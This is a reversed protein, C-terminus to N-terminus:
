LKGYDFAAFWLERNGTRADGWVSSLATDTIGINCSCDDGPLSGAPPVPAPAPRDTLAVVQSWKTGGDKSVVASVDYSGNAHVTRWVAGLAGNTPAYGLGPKNIFTDSTAADAVDHRTWRTGSDTTTWVEITHGSNTILLLALHGPMSPDAATFKGAANGAAPVVHREWHVGDDKTTEFVICSADCAIAPQPSAKYTPSTPDVTYALAVVGNAASHPGASKGQVDPDLPHPTSWTKGQDHSVVLWRGEAGGDEQSQTSVAGTVPDVAMFARGPGAAPTKAVGVNEPATAARVEQSAGFMETPQSWSFGHDHSTFSQEWSPSGIAAAGAYVTGDPGVGGVPDGCTPTTRLDTQIGVGHGAVIAAALPLHQTGTWHQGGDSTTAVGCYGYLINTPDAFVNSTGLWIVTEVGPSTPDPMLYGEGALVTHDNSIHSRIVAPRSPAAARVGVGSTGAIAAVAAGVAGFARRRTSRRM